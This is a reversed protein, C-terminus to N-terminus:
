GASSLFRIQQALSRKGASLPFFNFGHPCGTYAALEAANGAAIWRAHMFLTDDLFPDLSGVSFLALTSRSKSSSYSGM